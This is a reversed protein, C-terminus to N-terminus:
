DSEVVVTFMYKQFTFRNVNGCIGDCFYLLTILYEACPLFILCIVQRLLYWILVRVCWSNQSCASTLCWTEPGVLQVGSSIGHWSCCASFVATLNKKRRRRKKKFLQQYLELLQLFSGFHLILLLLFCLYM